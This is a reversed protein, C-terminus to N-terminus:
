KEWMGWTLVMFLQIPSTIIDLPITYFYKMKKKNVEKRNRVSWEISIDTTIPRWNAKDLDTKSNTTYLRNIEVGPYRKQIIIVHNAYLSLDLPCNSLFNNPRQNYGRMLLLKAPAQYPSDDISEVMQAEEYINNDNIPILILLKRANSRQVLIDRFCYQHYDKGSKKILGSYKGEYSQSTNLIFENISQSYGTIDSNVHGSIMCGCMSLATFIILIIKLM